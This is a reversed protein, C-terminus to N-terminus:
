AGVCPKGHQRMTTLSNGQATSQGNRELRESRGALLFCTADANICHITQFRAVIDFSKMGFRIKSITMSDHIMIESDHIM